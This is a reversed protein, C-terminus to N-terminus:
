PCGVLVMVRAASSMAFSPSTVKGEHAAANAIGLEGLLDPTPLEIVHHQAAVNGSVVGVTRAPAPHASM